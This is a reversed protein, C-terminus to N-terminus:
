GGKGVAYWGVLDASRDGVEFAAEREERTGLGHAADVIPVAEEAGGVTVVQLLDGFAKGLQFIVEEAGVEVAVRDASHEGSEPPLRSGGGSVGLGLFDGSGGLTEAM